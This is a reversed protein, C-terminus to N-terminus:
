TAGPAALSAELHRAFARPQELVDSGCEVEWAPLSSALAVLMRHQARLRARFPSAPSQASLRLLTEAAPLRRCASQARDRRVPFVLATPAFPELKVALDLETLQCARKDNTEDLPPRDLVFRLRPHNSITAPPLNTNRYLSVASISPGDRRLLVKDDARWTGGATVLALSLSTKGSGSAGCILLREAGLEVAAAHLPFCGLARWHEALPAAVLDSWTSYPADFVQPTLQLEIRGASHDIAATSGDATQFRSRTEDIQGSVFQYHLNQQHNFATENSAPAPDHLTAFLRVHHTLATTGLSFKTTARELQELLRPGAEVTVELWPLALQM